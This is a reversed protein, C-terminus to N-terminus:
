PRETEKEDKGRKRSKREEDKKRAKEDGSSELKRQANAENRAADAMAILKEMYGPKRPTKADEAARRELEEATPMKVNALLKRETIGWLSSAIFYLCLGAPVYYFMIGMFIMMFNMMKYQMAQEDSTPPGAM